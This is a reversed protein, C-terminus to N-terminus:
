VQIRGTMYLVAGGELRVRDGDLECDVDGGRASVQRAKLSRKGIRGAWYPALVCHASGTVPDENIGKAPAFLRSVFDYGNDGPATVIVGGQEAAALAGFDPTLARVEDASKYVLLLFGNGADARLAAEPKGGVAAAAAPMCAIATAPNAPFDMRLRDGTKSVVLRGSATDFDIQATDVGLRNFMVWATALTAHGCLAVETAPTFWRLRWADAERQFFATESLNNEAAIALLAEDKPWPADDPLPCVAAPNGEFAHSAFADVQYIDLEM